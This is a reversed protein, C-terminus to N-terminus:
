NNEQLQPYNEMKWTDEFDWGASVFISEEQMEDTNLGEGGKSKDQNSTQKDWFSSEVKGYEADGVLGGSSQGGEVDGTSYTNTIEGENNYGVLGGARNGDVSGKSYSDEITGGWNHGVLGGTRGDSTVSSESYSKRIIGLNRGALGGNGWDIGDVVGMSYSREIIGANRGVLGGVKERGDVTSTSYSNSIYGDSDGILGGTYESAEVSDESVVSGTSYSNNVLSDSYGILGGVRQNGRVDGTAYSETVRDEEYKHGILGGVYSGSSTVDGTAFSNSVRGRDDGILGGINRGEGEVRTHSTSDYVAGNSYGVLGGVRSSGEVSGSIEANTIAGNNVGTIGGVYKGGTVEIDSLELNEITGSNYSLRDETREYEGKNGSFLGVYEEDARNIYLGEITNGQGDFTGTFATNEDGIPEFGKGNNWNETESADIDNALVYDSDLNNRINNLDELSRVYEASDVEFTEELDEIKVIYSDESNKSVNFNLTTSENSKLNVTKKEETVGNVELEADYSDESGGINEIDVNATVTEGPKIREENLTLDSVEFDAPIQFVAQISKDRDITIDTERQSDISVGNNEWHSFVWGDDPTAKLTIESEHEHTHEGIAPSVEGEGEPEEISLTHEPAICGSASIVLSLLLIASINRGFM